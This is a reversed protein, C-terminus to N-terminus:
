YKVIFFEVFNKSLMTLHFLDYAVKISYLKKWKLLGFYLYHAFISLSFLLFWPFRKCIPLPGFSQPDPSYPLILLCLSKLLGGGYMCVCLIVCVYQIYNNKCIHLLYYHSHLFPIWFYLSPSPYLPFYFSHLYIHLIYELETFKIASM